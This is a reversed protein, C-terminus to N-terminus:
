YIERIRNDTEYNEFITNQYAVVSLIKRTNSNTGLSLIDQMKKIVNFAASKKQELSVGKTAEEFTRFLKKSVNVPKNGNLLTERTDMIADVSKEDLGSMRMCGLSVASGIM